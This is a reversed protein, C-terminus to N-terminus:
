LDYNKNREAPTTYEPVLWETIYLEDAGRFSILSKDIIVWIELVM